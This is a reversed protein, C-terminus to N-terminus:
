TLAEDLTDYIEFVQDLKTIKILNMVMPTIQCLKIELQRNKAHNYISVIAGFGSSDIFTLNALNLVISKSDSDILQYLKTKFSEAIVATLKQGENTFSVIHYDNQNKNISLM